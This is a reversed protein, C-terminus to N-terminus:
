QAALRQVQDEAGVVLGLPLPARKAFANERERDVQGLRLNGIRQEVRIERALDHAKM